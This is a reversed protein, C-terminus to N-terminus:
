RHDLSSVESEWMFSTSNYDKIFGVFQIERGLQCLNQAKELNRVPPVFFKSLWSVPARTQFSLIFSNLVMFANIFSFGFVASVIPDYDTSKLTLVVTPKSQYAPDRIIERAVVIGMAVVSVKDLIEELFAESFNEVPGLNIRTSNEFHLHDDRDDNSGIFKCNMSYVNKPILAESTSGYATVNIPNTFPMGGNM